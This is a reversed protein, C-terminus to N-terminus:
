AVSFSSHETSPAMMAGARASPGPVNLSTWSAGDWTWTDGLNTGFKIGGFLVPVGGLSAMAADSRASPGTVDVSAWSTGNWIWTDSLISTAGVGGIVDGRGGFLIARTAGPTSPAADPESPNTRQAELGTRAGCATTLGLALLWGRAGVGSMGLGWKTSLTV